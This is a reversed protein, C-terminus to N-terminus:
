MRLGSEAAVFREDDGCSPFAITDCLLTLVARAGLVTCLETGPAIREAYAPALRAAAGGPQLACGQAKCLPVLCLWMAKLLSGSCCKGFNATKRRLLFLGLQVRDTVSL